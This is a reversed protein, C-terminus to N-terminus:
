IPIDLCICSFDKHGLKNKFGFGVVMLALRKVGAGFPDVEGKEHVHACPLRFHVNVGHSETKLLTNYVERDDYCGLADDPVPHGLYRSM